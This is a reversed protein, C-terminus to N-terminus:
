GEKKKNYAPCEEVQSKRMEWMISGFRDEGDKELM